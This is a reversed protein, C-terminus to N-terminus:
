QLYILLSLFFLSFFLSCFFHHCFQWIFQLCCSYLLWTEKQTDSHVQSSSLAHNNTRPLKCSMILTHTNNCTAHTHPHHTCTLWCQLDRYHPPSPPFSPLLSPFFTPLSCTAPLISSPCFFPLSFLLSPLCNPHYFLHLSHPPLSFLLSLLFSPSSLLVFPLFSLFIHLSYPFYLPLFPFLLSPSPFSPVISSPLFSPFSFSLFFLTVVHIFCQLLGEEWLLLLPTLCLCVLFSFSSFVSVFVCKWLSSLLFGLRLSPCYFDSLNNLMFSQTHM